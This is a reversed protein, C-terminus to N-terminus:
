RRESDRRAIPLECLIPIKASFHAATAVARHHSWFRYTGKITRIKRGESCCCIEKQNKACSKRLAVGIQSFFELKALFAM